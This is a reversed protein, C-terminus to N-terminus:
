VLSHCHTDTEEKLNPLVLSDTQRFFDYTQSVGM